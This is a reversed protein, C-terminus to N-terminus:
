QDVPMPGGAIILFRDALELAVAFYLTFATANPTVPM